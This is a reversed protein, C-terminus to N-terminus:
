AKDNNNILLYLHWDDGQEHTYGKIEGEDIHSFYIKRKYGYKEVLYKINEGMREQEIWLESDGMGESYVLVIAGWALTYDLGNCLVSIELLKKNSSNLRKIQEGCILKITKFDNSGRSAVSNVVGSDLISQLKKYYETSRLPTVCKYSGYTLKFPTSEDYDYYHESKHILSLENKIILDSSESIQKQAWKTSKFAEDAINNFIKSRREALWCEDEPETDDGAWYFLHDFEVFPIQQEPWTEFSYENFYESYKHKVRNSINEPVDILELWLYKWIDGPRTISFLEYVRYGDKADLILNTLAHNLVEVKLSFKEGRYHLGELSILM